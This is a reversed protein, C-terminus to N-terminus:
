AARRRRRDTAESARPVFRTGAAITNSKSADIYPQPGHHPWHCAGFASVGDAITADCLDSCDVFSLKSPEKM